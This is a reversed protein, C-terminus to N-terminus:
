DQIYFKKIRKYIKTKKYNIRLNWFILVNSVDEWIRKPIPHSILNFLIKLIQFKINTHTVPM